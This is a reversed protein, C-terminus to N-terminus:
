GLSLKQVRTVLDAETNELNMISKLKLGLMHEYSGAPKSLLITKAERRVKMVERIVRKSSEDTAVPESSIISSSADDYHCKKPKVISNLLAAQLLYLLRGYRDNWGPWILQGVEIHKRTLTLLKENWKWSIKNLELYYQIKQILEFEVGMLSFHNAHFLPKGYELLRELNEINKLYDTTDSNYESSERMNDYDKLLKSVEVASKQGKCNSESCKWPSEDVLPHDPLLCGSDCSSCKLASFYSGFELADSCRKCSCLFFYDKLYDRRLLTGQFPLAYSLTIQSGKPINVIAKLNFIQNEDVEYDTNPACDHAAMAGLYYLYSGHRRNFSIM